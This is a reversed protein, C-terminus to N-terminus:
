GVASVQLIAEPGVKEQGDLQRIMQRIQESRKEEGHIAYYLALYSLRNRRDLHTKAVM